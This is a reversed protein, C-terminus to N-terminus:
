ARWGPSRAALVGALHDAADGGDRVGRRHRGPEVGLELLVVHHPGGGAMRRGDEGRRVVLQARMVPAGSWRRRLLAVHRPVTRRRGHTVAHLGQGQRERAAPGATDVAVQDHQHEADRVLDAVEVVDGVREAPPVHQGDGPDEVRHLEDGVLDGVDVGGPVDHRRQDPRRGARHDARQEGAVHGRVLGEVLDHEGRDAAHVASREWRTLPPTRSATLVDGSGTVLM